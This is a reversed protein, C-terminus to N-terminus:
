REDELTKMVFLLLVGLPALFCRSLVSGSLGFHQLLVSGSLGCFAGRKFTQVFREALGNSSPHYPASCTHKIGNSKLFAKFETSTFQPGNDSMLQEPLGDSSFLQRLERVTASAMTTKMEIVEPWKSHADVVILFQRGMFPGAFDVHIRQWPM